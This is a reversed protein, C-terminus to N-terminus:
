KRLGTVKHTITQIAFDIDTSSTFRGISIRISGHIRDPSFGMAKLVHSPKQSGSTCASGTALALQKQLTEMLMTAEIGAIALNVTNPLRHTPHGNLSVGEIQLLHTQLRDRLSEIRIREESLEANALACAEGFGVVAAVNLTGQVVESTGLGEAASHFQGLWGTGGRMVLAGVGKPGYLKHAACVGLDVQSAAQKVPIKGVAQTLDSFVPIGMTQAKICIEELPFVVGTENNALATVLLSAGEERSARELQRDLESQVLLGNALVPLSVISTAPDTGTLACLHDLTRHIAKHETQPVLFLPHRGEKAMKLWLREFALRIGATAGGTFFVETPKAGLLDAVQERANEVAHRAVKGPAHTRSAPNGFHTSLYPQMAELVRPDIPTTANYDLYVPLKDQEM